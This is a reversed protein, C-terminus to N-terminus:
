LMRRADDIIKRHDFALPPLEDFKFWKMDEVEIDGKTEKSLPKAIFAVTITGRPDRKPDSYVGLLKVLEVKMGTEELVERRCAEEAPETDEIFGGPVAWFGKFPEFKRKVLLIKGRETIVADM